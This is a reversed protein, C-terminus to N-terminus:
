SLNIIFIFECLITNGSPTEDHKSRANLNAGAQALLELVELQFM